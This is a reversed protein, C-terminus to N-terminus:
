KSAATKGAKRRIHEEKYKIGKGKYVEPPRVERVIAAFQGVTAKNIGTILISNKVVKVELDTPIVLKVDHSYGMTLILDTGQVSARYGTGMFTLEKTFGNKVGIIMNNILRAILGHMSKAIKSDNIRTVTVNDANIAIETERPIPMTLVKEGNKVTLIGQDNTVEVGEEIKVPRKGIKSM